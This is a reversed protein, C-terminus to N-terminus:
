RSEDEDVVSVSPACCILLVERKRTPTLPWDDTRAGETNFKQETTAKKIMLTFGASPVVAAPAQVPQWQFRNGGGRWRQQQKAISSPRDHQQTAVCENDVPLRSECVPTAVAAAAVPAKPLPTAVAVAAPPNSQDKQVSEKVMLLAQLQQRNASDEPSSLM